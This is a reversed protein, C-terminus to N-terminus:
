SVRLYQLALLNGSKAASACLKSLDFKNYNGCKMEQHCLKAHKVTSVNIFTKNNPLAQLYAEQFRRDIIAIFYYHNPGVFSLIESLLAM